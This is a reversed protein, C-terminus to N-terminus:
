QMAEWAKVVSGSVMRGYVDLREQVGTRFPARAPMQMDYAEAEFEVEKARKHSSKAFVALASHAAQRMLAGSATTRLRVKGKRAPMHITGGYEHIAAYKVPDGIASQVTDGTITAKSAWAETRLTGTKIGLRHEAPPFPGKGALHAQQIHALTLQNAQDMAGAIAALAWQPMSQLDSLVKRAQPTLTITISDSM